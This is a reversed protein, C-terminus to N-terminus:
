FNDAAEKQPALKEGDAVLYTTYETFFDPPKGVYGCALESRKLTEM